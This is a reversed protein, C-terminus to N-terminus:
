SLVDTMLMSFMLQRALTLCVLQPDASVVATCQVMHGNHSMDGVLARTGMM